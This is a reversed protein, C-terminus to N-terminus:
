NMVLDPPNLTSKRKKILDLNEVHLQYMYM